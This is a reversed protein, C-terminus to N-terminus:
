LMRLFSLASTTSVTGTSPSFACVPYRTEFYLPLRTADREALLM